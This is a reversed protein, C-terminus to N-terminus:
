HRDMFMVVLKRVHQAIKAKIRGVILDSHAIQGPHSDAIEQFFKTTEAAQSGRLRFTWSSRSIRFACLRREISVGPGFQLLQIWMAIDIVYSGIFGNTKEFVSRRFTVCVPEGLLNRGSRVLIPLFERLNIEPPIKGGIEFIRPLKKGGSSIINRKCFSAVVEQRHNQQISGIEIELADKFLIDDQGMIKVFKGKALSVCYNWNDAAVGTAPGRVIRVRSDFISSLLSLTHDSSNDDSIIVEINRMSQTLVSEITERITAAGNFTPICISCIPLETQQDDSEPISVAPLDIGM